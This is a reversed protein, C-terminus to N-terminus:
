EFADVINYVDMTWRDILMRMIIKINTWIDLKCSRWIVAHCIVGQEVTKQHVSGFNV